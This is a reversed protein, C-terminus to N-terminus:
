INIALTVNVNVHSIVLNWIHFSIFRFNKYMYKHRSLASRIKNRNRTNYSHVDSNTVYFSHIIHPIIGINYKYMQIAIRHILSYAILSFRPSNGGPPITPPSNDPPFTGPPDCM